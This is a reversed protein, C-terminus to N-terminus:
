PQSMIATTEHHESRPRGVASQQELMEIIAQNFAPLDDPQRSTLLLGDVVVPKDRVRVGARRLDDQVTRWATVTRGELVGATLLLQAGHCISFIPKDALDFAAVFHVFREDARLQDPSFGGPVLLADYDDPRADAIAVDVDQTTGYKGTITRVGPGVITVRFGADRLARVPEALESDEFLDTAVCAVTTM